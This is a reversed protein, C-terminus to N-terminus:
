AAPRWSFVSSAHSTELWSRGLGIDTVINLPLGTQKAANTRTSGTALLDRVARASEISGKIGARGRAGSTLAARTSPSHKALGLKKRQRMADGRVGLALCGICRDNCCKRYVIRGPSIPGRTLAWIERCVPENTNYRGNWRKYIPKGADGGCGMPGTWEVCEGVEVTQAMIQLLTLRPQAARSM